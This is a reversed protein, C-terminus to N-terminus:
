LRKPLKRTKPPMLEKERGATRQAREMSCLIFAEFAFIGGICCTWRLFQQYLLSVPSVASVAPEGYFGGVCCTWRLFRRYLQHTCAHTLLHKLHYRKKFWCDKCSFRDCKNFRELGHMVAVAVLLLQRFGGLRYRQFRVDVLTKWQLIILTYVYPVNLPIVM